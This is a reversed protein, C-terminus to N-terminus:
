AALRECWMNLAEEEVTLFDRDPYTIKAWRQACVARFEVSSHSRLEGLSAMFESDSMGGLLVLDRTSRELEL